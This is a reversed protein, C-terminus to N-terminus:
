YRPPFLYLDVKFATGLNHVCYRQLQKVQTDEEIITFGRLRLTEEM